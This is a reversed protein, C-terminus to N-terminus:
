EGKRRYIRVGLRELVFAAAAFFGAAGVLVPLIFVAVPYRGPPLDGAVAIVYLTFGGAFALLTLILLLRGPITLWRAVPSENSPDDEEGEHRM